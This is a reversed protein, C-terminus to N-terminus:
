TTLWFTVENVQESAGLILLQLYSESGAPVRGAGGNEFGDTGGGASPQVRGAMGAGGGAGPLRHLLAAAVGFFDCPVLITRPRLSPLPILPMSDPANTALNEFAFL